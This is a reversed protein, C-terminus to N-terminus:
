VHLQVAQAAFFFTNEFADLLQAAIQETFLRVNAEAALTSKKLEEM